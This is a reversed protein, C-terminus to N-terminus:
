SIEPERSLIWIWENKVLRLKRKCAYMVAWNDYDTGLIAVTTKSPVGAAGLRDFDLYCRDNKDECAIIGENAQDIRLVKDKQTNTVLYRLDFDPEVTM